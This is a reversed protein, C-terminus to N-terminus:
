ILTFIYVYILIAFVIQVHTFICFFKFMSSADYGIDRIPYSKEESNSQFLVFMFHTKKHRAPSKM